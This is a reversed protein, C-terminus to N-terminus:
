GAHGALRMLEKRGHSRGHDCGQEHCPAGLGLLGWLRNRLGGGLRLGFSRCVDLLDRHGGRILRGGRRRDGDAVEYLFESGGGVTALPHEHDILNTGNSLVCQRGEVRENCGEGVRIWANAPMGRPGNPQDALIGPRRQGRDDLQQGVSVRDHHGLGGRREARNTLVVTALLNRGGVGGGIGGHDIREGARGNM